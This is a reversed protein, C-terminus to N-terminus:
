AGDAYRRAFKRDISDKLWWACRGQISLSGYTAIAKGDGCSLLNLSSGPPQHTKLNQGAVVAALNHALAPGARVAYVGSRALPRDM